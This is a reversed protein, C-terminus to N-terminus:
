SSWVIDSWQSFASNCENILNQLGNLTNRKKKITALLLKQESLSPYPVLISKVDQQNVSVQNIARKSKTKLQSLVITSSMLYFIFEPIVKELDMKIRMMNSEFVAPCSLRDVFAVKGVHELSNVRNLLIDNKNIKYKEIENNTLQVFLMKKSDDIIDGNTFDNIRM